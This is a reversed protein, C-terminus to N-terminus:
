ARSVRRVVGGLMAPSALVDFKGWPLYQTESFHSTSGRAYRRLCLASTEVQHGKLDGDVPSNRRETSPKWTQAPYATTMQFSTSRSEVLDSKSPHLPSLLDRSVAEAHFFPRLLARLAAGGGGGGRPIATAASQPHNFKHPPDDPNNIRLSDTDPDLKNFTPM